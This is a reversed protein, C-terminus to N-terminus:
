RIVGERRLTDLCAREVAELKREEENLGLLRIAYAPGDALWDDPWAPVEATREVSCRVEPASSPRM